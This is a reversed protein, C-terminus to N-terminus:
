DAVLVNLAQGAVQREVDLLHLRKRGDEAEFRGDVALGERVRDIGALLDGQAPLDQAGALGFVRHTQDARLGFTFPVEVQRGGLRRARVLRRALRRGRRGQLDMGKAARRALRDVVQRDVTG